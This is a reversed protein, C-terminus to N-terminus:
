ENQEDKVLEYFDSLDNIRPWLATAGRNMHARTMKQLYIEPDLGDKKLRNLMLAMYIPEHTGFLVAPELKSGEQNYEDPNPISPDKLSICLAFRLSINPTLGTKTKLIGLNKQVRSSTTVASFKLKKKERIILFTNTM